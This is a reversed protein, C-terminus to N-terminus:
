RPARGREWPEAATVPRMRTRAFGEHPDDLHLTPPLVGDHVALVAKILGAMGSAQMTHGLMSKVSGMAVPEAGAARPGFVRAVTALEAEDGVPTGTGHAELLGLADPAAPDLGAQRWAQELARVQGDVLPSMLSAARGDGAVGAGRVVAYIRDGDREADALRKLLVVGTGESLLTGDARRDFPRIRQSPSLARLQTFVSWLTAIHCHHVAGAVVLDCSGGALLGAAQEVALLSSACAADLTYAPGRFDLRNATRAAPPPPPPPPPPGPPARAPPPPAPDGPRRP